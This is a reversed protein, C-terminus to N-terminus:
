FRAHESVSQYGRAISGQIYQSEQGPPLHPLHLSYPNICKKEVNSQGRCDKWITRYQEEMTEWETGTLLHLEDKITSGHECFLKNAVETGYRSTLFRVFLGANPYYVSEERETKTILESPSLQKDSHKDRYSRIIDEIDYRSYNGDLWVAYRESMMKTGPTGLLHNAILHVM